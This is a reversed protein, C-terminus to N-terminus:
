LVPWSRIQNRSQAIDPYESIMSDITKEEDTSLPYPILNEDTARQLENGLDENWKEFNLETKDILKAYRQARERRKEKQPELRYADLAYVFARKYDGLIKLNLALNYRCAAEVSGLAIAKRYLLSAHYDDDDDFDYLLALQSYLTLSQPKLRYAQKFLALAADRYGFKRYVTAMDIWYIASDISDFDLLLALLYTCYASRYDMRNYFKDGQSSWDADSLIFSGGEFETLVETGKPDGRLSSEQKLTEMRTLYALGALDQDLLLENGERLISLIYPVKGDRRLADVIRQQESDLKSDDYKDDSESPPLLAWVILPLYQM